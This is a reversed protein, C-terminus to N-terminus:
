PLPTPKGCLHAPGATEARLYSYEHHRAIWNAESRRGRRRTIEQHGPSAIIVCIRFCQVTTCTFLSHEEPKAIDQRAVVPPVVETLLFHLEVVVVFFAMTSHTICYRVPIGCANEISVRTRVTLIRTGDDHIGVEAVLFLVAAPQKDRVHWGFSSRPKPSTGDMRFFVPLFFFAFFFFSFSRLGFLTATHPIHWGNQCFFFFLRLGFSSRPKSSTDDMVVFFGPTFFFFFHFCVFIPCFALAFTKGVHLVFTLLLFVSAANNKVKSLFFYLALYSVFCCDSVYFFFRLCCRRLFCHM